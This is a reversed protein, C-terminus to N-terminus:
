QGEPLIIGCSYTSSNRMKSILEQTPGIPYDGLAQALDSILDDTDELGVSLRILTDPIGLREREASPVGAHSTTAPRTILSEPGGLSPACTPLALRGLFREADLLDGRLTFSLLGGCGAFLESARTHQPHDSLGPYSVDRVAPHTSLFEAIRAASQNQHRVRLALTKLGRHLLFCAHPDLSGGLHNLLRRAREVLDARGIVAGAVIDSHGNLYKTCSHLCLDFGHQEIPRYNIPTALTNDIISVLGHARAFATVAALDPVQLLPNTMTEVYIARTTPRLARAWAEPGDAAADIFSCAVGLRPLDEALLDRTGGYLCEHALVHDGAGCLALLAASIAAMGSATCLAAEAGELSALKRHLAEHNPTNNLRIYRVDHYGSEGGHVFTSSQYIPLVVAGAREEKPPEGDHILRTALRRPAAKTM